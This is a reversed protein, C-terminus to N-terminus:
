KKNRLHPYLQRAREIVVNRINNIIKNIESIGSSDLKLDNIPILYNLNENLLDVFSIKIKKSKIMIGKIFPIIEKNSLLRNGLQKSLEIPDKSHWKDTTSELIERENKYQHYHGIEHGVANVIYGYIKDLYLNSFKESLDINVVIHPYRFDYKNCEFVASIYFPRMGIDNKNNQITLYLKCKDDINIKEGYDRGMNNKVVQFIERSIKATLLDDKSTNYSIRYIKML